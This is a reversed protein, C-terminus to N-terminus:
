IWNGLAITGEKDNPRLWPQVILATLMEALEALIFAVVGSLVNGAFTEALAVTPPIAPRM